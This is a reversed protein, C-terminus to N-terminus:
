INANHRSEPGTDIQERFIDFTKDTTAHPNNRIDILNSDLCGRSNSLAECRYCRCDLDETEGPKFAIVPRVHFVEKIETPNVVVVKFRVAVKPRNRIKIAFALTHGDKCLPM